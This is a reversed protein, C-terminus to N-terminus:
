KQWGVYEMVNYDNDLVIMEADAGEKLLFKDKVLNLLRAPYLSCMRLAEPLSIGVQQVLNKVAKNMTLASGSLIGNVVYKDGEQHHAYHGTATETVADTIVLLREGMIKKAVRVAAFDVHHGDPIITARVVDHDFAAGVLGPQRHILPSMANYLHTVLEVGYNFSDTAQEYTANSHGASVVVNYSRILSVIERNCIEPALTIIKIVDRGYELLEKVQSVTPAFIYEAVHAGKKDKSIWPGEAHLGLVGRGSQQWYARIADISKYLVENSNTAITPLCYGTGTQRNHEVITKLTEVDPFESLLRGGAGYLQLDIMPPAITASGFDRVPISADLSVLPLLKEIKGERTLVAYNQLLNNGTFVAQATYAVTNNNM